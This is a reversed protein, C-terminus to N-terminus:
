LCLMLDEQDYEDVCACYPKSRSWPLIGEQFETIQKGDKLKIADKRILDIGSIHSDLNVRYM